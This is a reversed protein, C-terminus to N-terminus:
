PLYVATLSITTSTAPVSVTRSGGWPDVMGANDSWHSFAERGYNSITVQYTQGGNVTFSCPSFCRQLLSGGTTSLTAYYGVLPSGHGNTAAISITSTSTACSYVATLQVDTSAATITRQPDTSETDAWHDFHCSGYNDVQITYSQGSDLTFTAPSYATTLINSDEFLVTYYGVITQGSTDQTSVTLQSTSPQSTAISAYYVANTVSSPYEGLGTGAVCYIYGSAVVCSQGYVDIPYNATSTWTGIGSSSVPAFYVADTPTAGSSVDDGGVCYIYGGSIMCSQDAIVNPYGTTTSWAGVAGTASSLPAYYVANTLPSSPSTSGGVCYIYGESTACSEGYVGYIGPTVPYPTTSTWTGVGSSSIPAYYVAQSVFPGGYGGVCYIYGGAITCSPVGVSVPYSATSSWAGVGSSSVPAYYVDSSFGTSSTGAVCYIYGGSIACSQGSIATPYSTTATWPGVGTSSVSAYYVYNVSSESSNAGGVCYVYGGAAACSPDTISAPYLTTNTWSGLTEAKVQQPSFTLVSNLLVSAL